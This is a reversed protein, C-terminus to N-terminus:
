ERRCVSIPPMVAIVLATNPLASSAPQSSSLPVPAGPRVTEAAADACAADPRVTVSVPVTEPPYSLTMQSCSEPGLTVSDFPLVVTAVKVAGLTAVPVSSVKRKEAADRAVSTDVVTDTVTPAAVSPKAASALLRASM